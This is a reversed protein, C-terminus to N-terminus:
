RHAHRHQALRRLEQDVEAPFGRRNGRDDNLLKQFLRNAGAPDPWAQAIENAIRPFQESVARPRLEAPLRILWDIAAGTLARDTAVPKRRRSEWYGPELTTREKVGPPLDDLVHKADDLDTLEFEITGPPRIGPPQQNYM